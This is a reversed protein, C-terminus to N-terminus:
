LGTDLAPAWKREQHGMSSMCAVQLPCGAKLQQTGPLDAGEGQPLPGPVRLGGRPCASISGVGQGLTVTHSLAGQLPQLPMLTTPSFGAETLALLCVSHPEWSAGRELSRGRCAVPRLRVHSDRPPGRSDRLHGFDQWLVSSSCPRWVSGLMPKM